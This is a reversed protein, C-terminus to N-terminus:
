GFLPRMSRAPAAQPAAARMRLSIQRALAMIRDTASRVNAWDAARGGLHGRDHHWRRSFRLGEPHPYRSRPHLTAWRFPYEPPVDRSIIPAVFVTIAALGGLLALYLAVMLLNIM